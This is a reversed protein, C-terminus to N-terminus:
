QYRSVISNKIDGVEWATNNIQVYLRCNKEFVQGQSKEDAIGFDSPKLDTRLKAKLTPKHVWKGSAKQISTSM